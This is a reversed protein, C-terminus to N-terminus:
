LVIVYRCCAEVSFCSSKICGIESTQQHIAEDNYLLKECIILACINGWNVEIDGFVLPFEFKCACYKKNDKAHQYICPEFM